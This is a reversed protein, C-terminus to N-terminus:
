HIMKKFVRDKAKIKELLKIKEQKKTKQFWEKIKNSIEKANYDSDSMLSKQIKKIM